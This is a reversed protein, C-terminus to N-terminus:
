NTIALKQQAFVDSNRPVMAMRAWFSGGQENQAVLKSLAFKSRSSVVAMRPLEAVNPIKLLPV